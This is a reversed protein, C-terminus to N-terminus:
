KADPVGLFNGVAEAARKLAEDELHAYRQTLTPDKHTLLKQVHSLPVGNSVAVSAFTHRLGHLPRFDKPLGAAAKIANVQKNMDIMRSRGDKGPFVYESGNDGVEALLDKVPQTLPIREDRNSKAGEQKEGVINIFGHELDIHAWKLGFLENRRMGTYYAMLMLQGAKRNPAAQAAEIFRAREEKTLMETKVNNLKPMEFHLRSPDQWACLGKKVGFNIVRRLLELVNKTTGAKKGSKLLKLRLTDVMQTTLEEPSLKAFGSLYNKFRNEDTVIGKLGPNNEKYAEWLKGITWRRAEAQAKELRQRRRETNPLTVGNIRQERIKAAKAVTMRESERGVKEEVKKGDLRYMIYYIKDTKETSVAEGSSTKSKARQKGLIYFVGVKDTQHRTLSAM